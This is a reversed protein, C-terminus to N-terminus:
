IARCSMFGVWSCSNSDRGELILNVKHERAWLTNFAKDKHLLVNIM